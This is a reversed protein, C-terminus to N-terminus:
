VQEHNSLASRAWFEEQHNQRGARRGASTNPSTFCISWASSRRVTSAKRSSRTWVKEGEVLAELIADLVPYPPLSDQDTQNPRLEASPAKDIINQPIVEGRDAGARRAACARQALAVAWLGADQLPRKDNFGGNMDGYLTAYGVSM